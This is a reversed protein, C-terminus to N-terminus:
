INNLTGSGTITVNINEPILNGNYNIDGSGSITGTLKGNDGNNISIDCNGSGSLNVDVEKSVLNFANFNGSGSLVMNHIDAIGSLNIDGSGSIVSSLNTVNIGKLNIEGSGSLELDLNQFNIEEFNNEEIIIKGSSSLTLSKIEPLKIYIKILKHDELCGDTYIKLTKDDKVKTKLVEYVESQAQIKVEQIEGYEVYVEASIQLEVSNFFDVSRIKEVNEGSGNVCDDGDDECSPFFLIAMLLLFFIRM